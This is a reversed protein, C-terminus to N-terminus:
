SAEDYSPEHHHPLSIWTKREQWFGYGGGGGEGPKRDCKAEQDELLTLSTLIQHCFGPGSNVRVDFLPTAFRLLLQQLLNCQRTACWLRDSLCWQATVWSQMSQPWMTVM